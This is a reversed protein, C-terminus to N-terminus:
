ETSAISSTPINIIFSMDMDEQQILIVVTIDIIGLSAVALAHILSKHTDIMLSTPEVLLAGQSDVLIINPVILAPSIINSLITM